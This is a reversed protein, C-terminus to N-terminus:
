PNRVWVDSELTQTASPVGSAYAQTTLTLKVVGSSLCSPAFITLGETVSIPAEAGVQRSLRNGVRKYRVTPDAAGCAPFRKLALENASCVLTSQCAQHLEETLRNMALQASTLSVLKADTRSWVQRNTQALTLTMGGVLAFILSVILVEVMTMGQRQSLRPPHPPAVTKPASAM